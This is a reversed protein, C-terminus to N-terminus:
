TKYKTKLKKRLYIKQWNEIFDFKVFKNAKFYPNFITFALDPMWLSALKHLIKIFLKLSNSM